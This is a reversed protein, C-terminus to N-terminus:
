LRAINRVHEAFSLEIMFMELTDKLNQIRPTNKGCKDCQFKMTTELKEVADDGAAIAHLRTQLHIKYARTRSFSKDCIQCFKENVFHVSKKHQRLQPFDTFEQDPCQDCTFIISGQSDVIQDKIASRHRYSQSHMVEQSCPYRASCIECHKISIKTQGETRRCAKKRFSLKASPAEEYEESLEQDSLGSNNSSDSETEHTIIKTKNLEHKAIKNILQEARLRSQHSRKLVPEELSHVLEDAPRRSKKRRGSTEGMWPNNEHRRLKWLKDFVVGCGHCKLNLSDNTAEVNNSQLDTHSLISKLDDQNEDHPLEAAFMKVDMDDEM